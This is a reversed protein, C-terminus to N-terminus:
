ERIGVGYGLLTAPQCTAVLGESSLYTALPIMITHTDFLDLRYYFAGFAWFCELCM